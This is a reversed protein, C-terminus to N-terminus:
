PRQRTTPADRNLPRPRLQPQEPNTNTVVPKDPLPAPKIGRCIWLYEASNTKIQEGRAGIGVIRDKHDKDM